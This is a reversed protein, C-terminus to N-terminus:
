NHANILKITKVAVNNQILKAFYIGAPLSEAQNLLTTPAHLKEFLVIQGMANTVEITCNQVPTGAVHVYFANSFPNPFASFTINGPAVDEIATAASDTVQFIDVGAEVLHGEDTDEARFSIRMTASTFMYDSIRINKFRWQGQVSDANLMDIVATESGNTLIVKLSDNPPTGNGGDNFFWRYYSIYADGYGTLDFVPSQLLTFGNDVDDEGAAGGNNGTIYCENGFDGAMDNEPNCPNGNFDTGVPEGKEWLGKDASSNVTWGYDLLFDDYYGKSLEIVVTDESTNITQSVLATKLGWKGAYFNYTGQVFNCYSRTGNIDTITEEFEAVGTEQIHLPVGPLANGSAADITKIVLRSTSVPLMNVNINTLQGNVLNVNPVDVTQYGNKSFRITYTGSDVTGTTYKGLFNTVDTVANGLIEIKVGPLFLQCISDRVVGELYAARKYTPKLIWLGTEIDSCIINGSPLYPYVGWQGNFGDGSYDPSTDYNGTEVLNNKRSVDHITVGYTYYSTVCYDNLFYTNHIITNSGPDVQTRDTETVNALDSVDYCTLTSNPKEDTTFIHNGDYTPWCNHSFNLPTSWTTITNAPVDAATKDHVDVVKMIGDNICALWMTDNRVYCDHVYNNTFKGLLPPNYPNANLDLFLQGKDTGNVYAIGNSDIFITHSTNMGGPKVTHYKISDPLYNLNVIVLGSSQETTVYAYGKYERVERWTASIGTAGPVLFLQQPTTPDTINVISLGQTTGVLAYERGQADAYGTLNSCSVNNPYTYHGLLSINKQAFVSVSILLLLCGLLKKM